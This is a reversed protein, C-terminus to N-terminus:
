NSFFIMMWARLRLLQTFFRAALSRLTFRVVRTSFILFCFSWFGASTFSPYAGGGIAHVKWPLGERGLSIELNSGSHSGERMM